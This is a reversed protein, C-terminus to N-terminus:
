RRLGLKAILSRYRGVDQNNLYRLLRRRNGVLGLLGRRTAEDHKHVRLHETLGEIRSTLLAVQVETSGTDSDHTRHGQIVSEKESKQLALPRAQTGESQSNLSIRAYPVYTKLRFLATYSNLTSSTFAEVGTTGASSSRQVVTTGACAPVWPHPEWIRFTPWDDNM